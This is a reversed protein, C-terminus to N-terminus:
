KAMLNNPLVLDYRQEILYKGFTTLEKEEILKFGFRKYLSAATDLEHTTWLYAGHYGSQLLFDMFLNMLKKGLGIGRYEPAILFYRLQALEGRDMLVLSGVMRKEHECVWIRSRAPDYHEFFECLGRGFYTEFQLGFHYERTYLDAHMSTIRGLDGPRLETRTTISKISSSLM